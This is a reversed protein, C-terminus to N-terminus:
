YGPSRTRTVSFFVLHSQHGVVQRWRTALVMNQFMGSCGVTMYITFNLTINLDTLKSCGPLMSSAALIYIWTFIQSSSTNVGSRLGASTLNTIGGTSTLNTLGGAQRLDCVQRLSLWPAIDALLILHTLGIRGAELGPWM